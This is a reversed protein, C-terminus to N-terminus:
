LRNEGLGLWYIKEQSEVSQYGGVNRTGQLVGASEM